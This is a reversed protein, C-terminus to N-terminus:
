GYYAQYARREDLKKKILSGVGVAGATGAVVRAADRKNIASKLKNVPDSNEGHIGELHKIKESDKMNYLKQLEHEPLTDTTKGVLTNFTKKTHEKMVDEVGGGGITHTTGKVGEAAGSLLRKARRGAMNAYHAFDKAQAIKELYKNM